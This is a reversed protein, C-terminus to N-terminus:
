QYQIYLPAPWLRLLEPKSTPPSDNRPKTFQKWGAFQVPEKKVYAYYSDRKLWPAGFGDMHMVIQTRADLQIDPANTVGKQTFRHVVLLKPPASVQRGVGRSVRRMTSTARM